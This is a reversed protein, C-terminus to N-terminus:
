DNKDCFDHAESIKEFLHYKWKLDDYHNMFGTVMQRVQTNTAVFLMNIDANWATSFQTVVKVRTMYDKPSTYDVAKSCDFIMHNIEKINITDVIELFAATIEGEKLDKSFTAVTKKDIFNIKFGM